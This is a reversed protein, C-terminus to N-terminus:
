GPLNFINSNESRRRTTRLKVQGRRKYLGTYVTLVTECGLIAICRNCYTWIAEPDGTVTRFHYIVSNQNCWWKGSSVRVDPNGRLVLNLFSSQTSDRARSQKGDWCKM